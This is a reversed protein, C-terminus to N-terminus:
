CIQRGDLEYSMGDLLFKAIEQRIESQPNDGNAPQYVKGGKPLAKDMADLRAKMDKWSEEAEALRGLVEQVQESNKDARALLESRESNIQDLHEEVKELIRYLNGTEKNVIEAM